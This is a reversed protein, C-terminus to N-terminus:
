EETAWIPNTILLIKYKDFILTEPLIISIIACPILEEIINKPLFKNYRRLNERLIKNLFPNKAEEGKIEKKQNNEINLLIAAGGKILKIASIIQIM